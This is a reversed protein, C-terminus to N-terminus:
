MISQEIFYMKISKGKIFDIFISIRYLVTKQHAAVDQVIDKTKMLYKHIDLIDDVDTDDYEVSFDYIDGNFETKKM